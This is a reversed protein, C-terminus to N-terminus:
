EDTNATPSTAFQTHTHMHVCVNDNNTKPPIFQACTFFKENDNNASEIHQIHANIMMQQQQIM